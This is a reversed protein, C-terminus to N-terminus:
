KGRTTLDDRIKEYHKINSLEVEVEEKINSEILGASRLGETVIAFGASAIALVVMLPVFNLISGTAGGSYPNTNNYYGNTENLENLIDGVGGLVTIGVFVVIFLRMTNGILKGVKLSEVESMQRIFDDAVIPKKKKKRLTLEDRIREYHKIRKNRGRRLSLLIIIGILFGSGVITVIWAIITTSVL